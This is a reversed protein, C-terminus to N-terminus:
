SRAGGTVYKKLYEQESYYQILSEKSLGALREQLAANESWHGTHVISHPYSNMGRFHDIHYVFDDTRIVKYDLKEFRHARELDEPASGKFNENEMGADIYKQRNMFQVYGVGSYQQRDSAGDDDLVSFKYGSKIFKNIVDDSPHVNICYNPTGFPYVVDADGDRILKVAKKIALRKLLVDVDYNSVIDTDSMSLMENIIQMRYFVRDNSFEFVHKLQELNEESTHKKLMPLVSSSFVEKNDVEKLIVTTNFNNILYSVSALCNRIRDESELRIPIMFTVDKLDIM